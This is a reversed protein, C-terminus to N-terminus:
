KCQQVEGERAAGYEYEWAEDLMIEFLDLLASVKIKKAM